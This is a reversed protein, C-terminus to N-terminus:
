RARALRLTARGGDATALRVLYVGPALDAGDVVVPRREGAAVDADLLVALERGLADTLTM